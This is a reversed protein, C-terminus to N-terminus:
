SGGGLAEVAQMLGEMDEAQCVAAGPLTKAILGSLVKGPGLELFTDFGDRAMNRLTDTWRVPRTVQLSLLEKAREAEYPEAGANGYVPISPARLTEGSLARSLGDGAERMLPSHFAGGVNLRLSRGGAAKLAAEFRDLDPLAGAVVTQDPANFNVAWVGPHGELAREVAGADMRMVAAMGGPHKEACAQMLSGRRAVLSFAQEFGMIGAQHCASWEGLSFGAAGRATIGLGGAAAACACEVLFLAPQATDTRTLREMPGEFCAALIGPMLTEARDMLARAAPSGEYLARGMGPKQAGQGPFVFALQAM